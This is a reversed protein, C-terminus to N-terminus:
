VPENKHGNCFQLPLNSNMTKSYIISADLLRLRLPMMKNSTLTLLIRCIIRIKNVHVYNQTRLVM